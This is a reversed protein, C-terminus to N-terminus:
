YVVGTAPDLHGVHVRSDVGFRKGAMRAQKCFFLDQTFGVSGKDPIVEAVSVFWPAKISRFLDMRYLTCGMAVGNVETINGRQIAERMDLPAFDLVGTDRYKSADGYAMPMNIDGKTFYLGAMADFGSWEISELLRIHADPPPLNDDELTLVYKWKSLEPHELIFSIMRDYAYGVEDGPCFFMARKQNMPQILGQWAGVVKHHIMGRTPVLIVTSSDRYTSGPISELREFGLPRMADVVASVPLMDKPDTLAEAGM